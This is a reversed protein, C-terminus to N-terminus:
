KSDLLLERRRNIMWDVPLSTLDELTMLGVGCGSIMLPANHSVKALTKLLRANTLRGQVQGCFSPYLIVRAGKTCTPTCEIFQVVSTWPGQDYQLALDWEDQAFVGCAKLCFNGGSEYCDSQALVVHSSASLFTIVLVCRAMASLIPIHRPIALM